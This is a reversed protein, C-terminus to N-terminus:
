GRKKKLALGYEEYCQTYFAMKKLANRWRSINPYISLDVQGVEAPDLTALLNIDALTLNESVFYPYKGLQQDVVPLFRQLFTLGEEISREDVDMKLLPAFVRNFVVRTLAVGVHFSTFDMWQDVLARTQLDTPYLPSKVKQALYKIIANSEFLVFGNDNIVPVKGAPHLKKFEETQHEGDRLRVVKYEYDLALANATFRVKNAPSSLDSGYLILM